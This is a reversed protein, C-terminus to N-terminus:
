RESIDRITACGAILFYSTDFSRIPPLPLIYKMTKVRVRWGETAKVSEGKERKRKRWGM